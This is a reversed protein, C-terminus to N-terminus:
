TDGPSGCSLKPLHAATAEFQRSPPLDNYGNLGELHAVSISLPSVEERLSGDHALKVM